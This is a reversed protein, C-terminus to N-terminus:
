AQNDSREESQPNSMASQPNLWERRKLRFSYWGSVAMFFGGVLGLVGTGLTIVDALTMTTAAGFVWGAVKTELFDKM